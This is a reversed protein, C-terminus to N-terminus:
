RNGYRTVISLINMNDTCRYMYIFYRPTSTILVSYLSSTIKWSGSHVFYTTMAVTVCSWSTFWENSLWQHSVTTWDFDRAAECAELLRMGVTRECLKHVDEESIHLQDTVLACCVTPFLVNQVYGLLYRSYSCFQRNWRWSWANCSWASTTNRADRLIIRVMIQGRHELRIISSCQSGISLEDNMLSQFLLVFHMAIISTSPIRRWKRITRISWHNWNKRLRLGVYSADPKRLYRDPVRFCEPKM